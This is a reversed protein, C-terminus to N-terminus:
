LSPPLIVTDIVHVVGNSCMIDTATVKAEEIKVGDSSVTIALPSGEVSTATKLKVVDEAKVSGPVVHFTLIKTLKAKDKLLASLQEEPLKKFAEDTPAFVTFPGEGKLTEVLGAEKIAAVLTSFSGASQATDVIDKTLTTEM